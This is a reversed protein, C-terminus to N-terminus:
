FTFDTNSNGLSANTLSVAHNQKLFLKCRMQATVTSTQKQARMKPSSPPSYQEQQINGDKLMQSPMKPPGGETSISRSRVQLDGDSGSTERRQDKASGRLDPVSPSRLSPPRGHPPMSPGGPLPMQGPPPGRVQPGPRGFQPPRSMNQPPRGNMQPAGPRVPQYPPSNNMMQMGPRVPGYTPSGNMGPRFPPRGNFMQPRSTPSTADSPPRSGPPGGMAMGPSPGMGSGPGSSVPPAGSFGQPNQTHYPGPRPPPPGGFGGPGGPGSPGGALFPPGSPSVSGGTSAVKPFSAVSNFSGERTLDAGPLSSGSMVSATRDNASSPTVAISPSVISGSGISSTATFLPSLPPATPLSALLEPGTSLQPLGSSPQAAMPSKARPDEASFIANLPHGTHVHKVCKSSESTVAFQQCAEFDAAWQEKSQRTSFNVMLTEKKMILISLVNGASAALTLAQHRDPAGGCEGMENPDSVKLHKGALPPFLLWFEGPGNRSAKEGPTMRECVLFLDTLLFIHARRVTMERGTARPTFHIVVDANRRLERKFPLDARNIQLQCAKPTMTFIDLTRSTDLQSQLRAAVEAFPESTNIPAPGSSRSPSPLPSTNHMPLAIPSTARIPDPLRPPIPTNVMPSPSRSSNSSGIGATQIPPPLTNERM